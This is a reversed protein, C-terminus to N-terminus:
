GLSLVSGVALGLSLIRGPGPNQSCVLSEIAAADGVGLVAIGLFHRSGQSYWAEASFGLFVQETSM